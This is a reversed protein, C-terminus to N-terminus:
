ESAARQRPIRCERAKELVELDLLESIRWAPVVVNMSGEIWLRDGDLIPEGTREPRRDSKRVEVADWFQGCHVGLLALFHNKITVVGGSAAWGGTMDLPWTRSKGSLDTSPVRYICVPSGSFGSRSRMDTLYSASVGGNPQVVPNQDSAVMALNGFRACPVNRSGGHQKDFLGVMFVDEGPEIEFKSIHEKTIFRDESHFWIQDTERLDDTLDVISLDDAGPIFQWDTPEYNLFRTAGDTTNIRIISAGSEHSLHWNTVGYFHYEGKVESPRAVISGTGFPGDLKGTGPGVGYLFFVCEFLNANLKPMEIAIQM